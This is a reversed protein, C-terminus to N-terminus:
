RLELKFSGAAVASPWGVSVWTGCQTGSECGRWEQWLRNRSLRWRGLHSRSHTGAGGAGATWWWLMESGAGAKRNPSPGVWSYEAQRPEGAQEEGGRWEECLRQHYNLLTSM